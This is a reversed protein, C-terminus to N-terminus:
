LNAGQMELSSDLPRHSTGSNRAKRPTFLLRRLFGSLRGPPPIFSRGVSQSGRLRTLMWAMLPLTLRISLFRASPVVFLVSLLLSGLVISPQRTAVGWSCLWVVAPALLIADYTQVHPSVLLTAIMLAAMRLTWLDQRRWVQVTVWIVAASAALWAITALDHPALTELAARLAHTHRQDSPDIISTDRLIRITTALYATVAATGCVAISLAAHAVLGVVIGAIVPWLRMAVLVFALALGFHPKVAIVSLALGGVFPKTRSLAWWGGVFGALPWVTSQGALVHAVFPPFLLCAGVIPWKAAHGRAALAVVGCYIAASLATWIVYAIPFPAFSVLAYLAPVLPPYAPPYEYAASSPVLGVQVRHFAPWDYQVAWAGQRAIAGFTYFQVFDGGLLPEGPVILALLTLWVVAVACVVVVLIERSSFRWMASSRGRTVDHAM